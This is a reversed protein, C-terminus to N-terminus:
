GGIKRKIAAIAINALIRGAQRLIITGVSRGINSFPKERDHLYVGGRFAAMTDDVSQTGKARADDLNQIAKRAAAVKSTGQIMNTGKGIATNATEEILGEVVAGAVAKFVEGASDSKSM